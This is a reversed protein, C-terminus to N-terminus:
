PRGEDSQKLLLELADDWTPLARLSKFRQLADLTERRMRIWASNPFYLDMMDRWVAAPLRYTAENDWPVQEVRFGGDTKVFVTGSFLLLLPVEGEDLAHFYKAAAVDFDYTCPVPLDLETTGRFSPVMLSLNTFQLPKLTEGWRSRDGFLDALRWGEEGTYGRLQPQIRMQCRLAIAHVAEGTTESVRLKFTITPAAAYREPRADTCEFVLESM